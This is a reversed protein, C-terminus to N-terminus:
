RQRIVQRHTQLRVIGFCNAIRLFPECLLIQCPELLVFSKFVLKCFQSFCLLTCIQFRLRMCNCQCFLELFCPFSGMDISM